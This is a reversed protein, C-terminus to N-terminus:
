MVCLESFDLSILNEHPQIKTEVKIEALYTQTNGQLSVAPPAVRARNKHLQLESLQHM